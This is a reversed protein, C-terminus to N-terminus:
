GVVGASRLEAIAEASLGLEALLDDTHAGMRPAASPTPPASRSFRPAPAPQLRGGVEVFSQRARNHPHDPAESPSLVPTVCADVGDFVETWEDRAKTLFVGQFVARLKGAQDLDFPSPLDEDSLGLGALLEAYFQPELAGVAVYKGDSCVYTDYFAAGSDLFNTGREPMWLGTSAMAHVFTTLLAAGEVMSADVVQGKGSFERERLAALVGIVLLFGGGAFDAVLNLSPLPREGVRGIPELAGALAIYNIDHGAAQAMPGHQGYGTLRGYVLGPNWARCDEPGVGLREAVGPRFGEVLVDADAILDRVIDVGRPDKLDVAISKQGRDFYGSPVALADGGGARDVRIVEAGLDALVMCAFPAPALSTLEVVKLGALPGASM